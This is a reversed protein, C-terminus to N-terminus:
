LISAKVPLQYVIESRSVRHKTMGLKHLVMEAAHNDLYCSAFVVEVNLTEFAFQTVAKAAETALGQNWFSEGIWFGLQVKKKTPDFFHLSIEGILEKEEKSEIAFVYRSKNEFGKVVYAIRLVADAEGYPFPFNDFHRTVKENNAYKVLAAVDDRRIKRLLLRTTEIQPFLDM